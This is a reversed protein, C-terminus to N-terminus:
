APCGANPQPERDVPSEDLLLRAATGAATPGERIVERLGASVREGDLGARNHGAPSDARDAERVAGGRRLRAEGGPGLHVGPAAQCGRWVQGAAGAEMHRRYRGVGAPPLLAVSAPEALGAPLAVEDALAECGRVRHRELHRVCMPLLGVDHEGAAAVHKDILGLRRLRIARTEAQGAEEVGRCM